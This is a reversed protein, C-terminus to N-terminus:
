SAPPLCHLGGGRGRLLAEQGKKEELIQEQIHRGQRELKPSACAPSRPGPGRAAPALLRREAGEERGLATGLHPRLCTGRPLVESHSHSNGLPSNKLSTMALERESTTSTWSDGLDGRGALVLMDEPGDVRPKSTAHPWLLGEPHAVVFGPWHAWARPLFHPSLLSGGQFHRHLNWRLCSGGASFM